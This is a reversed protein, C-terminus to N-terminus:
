KKQNSTAASKEPPPATRPNKNDPFPRTDPSCCDDECREAATPVYPETIVQGEGNMCISFLEVGMLKFCINSYHPIHVRLKQMDKIDQLTFRPLNLIEIKSDTAVPEKADGTLKLKNDTALAGSMITQLSGSHKADFGGSMNTDLSGDVDLDVDFTRQPYLHHNIDSIDISPSPM